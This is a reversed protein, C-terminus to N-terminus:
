SETSRTRSEGRESRKQRSQDESVNIHLNYELMSAHEHVNATRTFTAVGREFVTVSMQDLM